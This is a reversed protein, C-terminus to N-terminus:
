RPRHLLLVNLGDMLQIEWTGGPPLGELPFRAVGGERWLGLTTRTGDEALHILSLYPYGTWRAELVRGEERLVVEAEGQPRLPAQVEKLLRGERYLALRGWTGVPALAQFHLTGESDMFTFVPVELGDVLLRLSSPKGEPRARLRIPPNFFVEEGRIRGSFLLGESPLSQPLPPKQELFSQVAEYTYDSVWLPGCYSMLDYYTQPDKLTRAALDYGLVGISGDPYPYDPDGSTGCPAHYRGFNHGLEHAMVAPASPPEDWGVAVPYGIYGIGAIGSPYSVHVFGYYYRGSGDTQRLIRLEDLLKAWTNGDTSSLTGTFTYPARTTYLVKKLPWVRWLTQAFDPVTATQGQYVVPVVTLHLVTGAGVPPTLTLANDNEDTEAVRNEPDLRLEVRLGPAVWDEQVQANCTTALDGPLTSTPLPNPCSFSLNGVFASGLYAAGSLPNSLSVPSSSAVAHVRLLAPKGEVLRLNEKLVTQGWEAKLFRLNQTPTASVQLTLPAERVLGGGVGRVKLSHSGPALDPSARLELMPASPVPTSTPSLSVKPFPNGQLDVLSLSVTGSYTGSVPLRVYASGGQTLSLSSAELTLQFDGSPVQNVTLTLNAEKTLSGSTARVKLNYTGAAVSSAVSITLNQSVPSSGNVTLSTPSLTIGPVSNGGGGVLTLNVTGTFGNQPTLTLQTTKSDGQIVTLSTPNLSVTFTAELPPTCGVWAALGLLLLLGLRQM